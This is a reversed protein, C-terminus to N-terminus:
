PFSLIYGKMENEWSCGPLGNKVGGCASDLETSILDRLKTLDCPHKKGRTPKPKRSATVRADPDREFLGRKAKAMQAKITRSVDKYAPTGPSAVERLSDKTATFAISRLKSYFHVTSGPTGCVVPYDPNPCGPSNILRGSPDPRQCRGHFYSPFIAKQMRETALSDYVTSIPALLSSATNQEM